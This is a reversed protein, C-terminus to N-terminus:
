KNYRSKLHLPKGEGRELFNRDIPKEIARDKYAKILGECFNKGILLTDNEQQKEDVFFVINENSRNYLWVSRYNADNPCASFFILGFCVLLLGFVNNTRM